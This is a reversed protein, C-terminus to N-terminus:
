VRFVGRQRITVTVKSGSKTVNMVEYRGAGVWERERWFQKRGVLGEIKFAKSGKECRVILQTTSKARAQAAFRAAVKADSTFSGLMMDFTSGKVWQGAVYDASQPMAMGRYLVPADAPSDAIARLLTRAHENGPLGAMIDEAGKRLAQYKGATWRRAAELLDTVTDSDPFAAKLKTPFDQATFYDGTRGRRVFETIDQMESRPPAPASFSPEAVCGCGDHANFSEEPPVVGQAAKQLCYSCTGVVKRSWGLSAPDERTSRVVAERWGSAVHRAAAM